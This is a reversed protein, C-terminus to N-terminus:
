GTPTLSANNVIKSLIKKICLCKDFVCCCLGAGGDARRQLGNEWSKSHFFHKPMIHWQKTNGSIPNSIVPSTFFISLFQAQALM